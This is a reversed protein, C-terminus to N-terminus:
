TISLLFKFVPKVDVHDLGDENLWIKEVVARVLKQKEEDTAVEWLSKLDTLLEGAKELDAPRAPRNALQLRKLEAQQAKILTTITEAESDDEAVALLRKNRKIEQQLGKVRRGDDGNRELQMQTAAILKTNWDPPLKIDCLYEGIEHDAIAAGTPKADCGTQRERGSCRYYSYPQKRKNLGSSVRMTNRCKVCYVRKACLYVRYVAPQGGANKRKAKEARMAEVRQWLEEDVIAEHDGPQYEKHHRIEGRYFRNRLMDAVSDKSWALLADKRRGAGPPEIGRGNLEAAIETASSGGAYMVFMDHVIHAKPEDWVAEGDLNIYGYPPAGNQKKAAFRGAHGKKMEQSLNNIYWEAFAALLTLLVRGIPTSFDFDETASVVTVGRRELERMTLLMDTVSRSFRDLKHVIIVSFQGDTADALMQRFAPRDTTRASVGEDTYHGVYDWGRTAILKQCVNEQEPLSHGDLQMQSSVRTYIVARQRLLANV